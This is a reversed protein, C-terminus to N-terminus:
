QGVQEGSQQIPSQRTAKEKRPIGLAHRIEQQSADPSQELLHELKRQLEADRHILRDLRNGAPRTTSRGNVRRLKDSVGAARVLGYNRTLRRLAKNDGRASAAQMQKLLLDAMDEFRDVEALPDENHALWRGDDVLKRALDTEGTQPKSDDTAQKLLDGSSSLIQTREQPSSTGALRVNLDVLRDVVTDSAEATRVGGSTLLWVGLGICLLVSAAVALRPWAIPLDSARHLWERGRFALRPQLRRLFAKKADTSPIPDPLARAAQELENVESLLRQCDACGHLHAQSDATLGDPGSLDAAFIQEQLQQCNM